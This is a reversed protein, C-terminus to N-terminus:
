PCSYPQHVALLLQGPRCHPQFGQARDGGLPLPVKRKSACRSPLVKHAEEVLLPRWTTKRIFPRTPAEQDQTGAWDRFLLSHEFEGSVTIILMKLPQSRM